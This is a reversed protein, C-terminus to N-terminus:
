SEDGEGGEDIGDTYGTDVNLDTCDQSAGCRLCILKCHIEVMEMNCNKCLEIDDAM